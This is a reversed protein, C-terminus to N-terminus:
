GDNTEDYEEGSLIGAAEENARDLENILVFLQPWRQWLSTLRHLNEKLRENEERLRSIRKGLDKQFNAAFFADNGSEASEILWRAMEEDTMPKM